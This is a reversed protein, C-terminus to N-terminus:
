TCTIPMFLIYYEKQSQILEFDNFNISNVMIDIFKQNSDKISLNGYKSSQVLEYKHNDIFLNIAKSYFSDM